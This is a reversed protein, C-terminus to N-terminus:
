GDQQGLTSQRADAEEGHFGVERRAVLTSVANRVTTAPRNCHREDKKDANEDVHFFAQSFRELSRLV